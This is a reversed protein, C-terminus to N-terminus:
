LISNKGDNGGDSSDMYTKLIFAAAIKDVYKKRNERRVSAEMLVDKAMLTTMREDVYVLELRFKNKLKESFKQVMQCTPGLTNNMNKPLGVVIKEVDYKEILDHIKDYAEKNSTREITELPTAITFTEDSIAVGIWKEGVDLGLVRNM